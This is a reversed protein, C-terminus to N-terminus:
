SALDTDAATGNEDTAPTERDKGAIPIRVFFTTGVGACTEFTLQGGHGDKVITRAIALGQGTGKGVGKTTFFPEFIRSAVAHPIGGGTDRISIIVNDGEQRTRVTITGKTDSGKVVDGIAHAANVVLNLVVQNINNLHCTVLPLDALETELEAVYKYESRAITLTSQLARNLDSPAMQSQTPHAFEKMSRVITSIRGLGDVCREFAKPVHEQLYSLDAEESKTTATTAAEMLQDSPTGETVLRGLEQYARLVDFMDQAGDRLFQISDALFQVPTNVEHAVGAAVTGLSVFRQAAAFEAQTRKLETVDQAVLVVGTVRDDNRLPSM